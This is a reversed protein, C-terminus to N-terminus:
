PADTSRRDLPRLSRPRSTTTPAPQYTLEWHRKGGLAVKSRDIRALRHTGGASPRMYLLYRRARWAVARKPVHRGSEIRVILTPDLSNSTMSAVRIIGRVHLWHTLRDILPKRERTETESTTV